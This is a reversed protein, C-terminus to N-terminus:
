VLSNDQAFAMMINQAASIFHLGVPTNFLFLKEVVAASGGVDDDSPWLFTDPCM